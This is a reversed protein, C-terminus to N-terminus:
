RSWTGSLSPHKEGIKAGHPRSKARKPQTTAQDILIPGHTACLRGKAFHSDKNELMCARCCCASVGAQGDTQKRMVQAAAAAGAREVSEPRRAVNHPRSLLRTRRHPCRAQRQLNCTKRSNNCLSRRRLVGRGQVPCLTRLSRDVQQLLARRQAYQRTCTCAAEEEAEAVKAIGLAQARLAIIAITQPQSCHLTHRYSSYLQLTSGKVTNRRTNRPKETNLLTNGIYLARGDLSLVM